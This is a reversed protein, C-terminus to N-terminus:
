LKSYPQNWLCYEILEKSSGMPGLRECGGAGLASVASMGAGRTSRRAYQTSRARLGPPRAGLRANIPASSAISAIGQQGARDIGADRHGGRQEGYRERAGQSAM